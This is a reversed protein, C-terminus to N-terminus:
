RLIPCASKEIFEDLEVDAGLVQIVKKIKVVTDVLEKSCKIRVIRDARNEKIAKKANSWWDNQVLEKYKAKSIGIREYNRKEMEDVIGKM